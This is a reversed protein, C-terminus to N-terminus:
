FENLPNVSLIYSKNSELVAIMYNFFDVKAASEMTRAMPVISLVQEVQTLMVPYLNQTRLVELVDNLDAISADILQDAPLDPNNRIYEFRERVLRMNELANITRLYAAIDGIENENFNFFFRFAGPSQRFADTTYHRIAEELTAASNNHFFPATDAAEVLRPTDFGGNFDNNGNDSPLGFAEPRNNVGTNNTGGDTNLFLHCAICGTDLFLDQGKVIRPERFELGFLARVRTQQGLSLQFAELADAELQTPVRFDVDPRRELTLPMHQNIAGYVFEQLTGRGPAGDGSWGVSHDFEGSLNTGAVSANLSFMHNVSRLSFKNDLDDFGDLNEKILARERLLVSDELTALAPIFEAVFLPDDNPLTAIFAPDITFNNDSRHCTGCTRGNGGFTENFFLESGLQILPDNAKAMTNLTLIEPFANDQNFKERYFRKEFLTRAGVALASQDPTLGRKSLVVLDFDTTVDFPKNPLQLRNNFLQTEGVKVMIDGAEPRADRGEGAVNRVLWIDFEDGLQFNELEASVTKNIFDFTIVGKVESFETVLLPNHAFKYAHLHFNERVQNKIDSKYAAYANALGDEALTASSAFAIAFGLLLKASKM